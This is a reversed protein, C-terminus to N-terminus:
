NRSILTIFTKNNYLVVDFKNMSTKIEVAEYRYPCPISPSANIQIVADYCKCTLVRNNLLGNADFFYFTTSINESGKGWTQSILTYQEERYIQKQLKRRPGSNNSLM